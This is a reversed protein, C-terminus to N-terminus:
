LDNKCVCFIHETQETKELFHKWSSDCMEDDVCKLKGPAKKDRM